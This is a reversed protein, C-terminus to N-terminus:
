DLNIMRLTSSSRPRYRRLVYRWVGYVLGVILAAIILTVAVSLCMVTNVNISIQVVVVEFHIM